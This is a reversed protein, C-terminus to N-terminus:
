YVIRYDICRAVQSSSNHPQSYPAALYTGALLSELSASPLLPMVSSYGFSASVKFQMLSSGAVHMTTKM